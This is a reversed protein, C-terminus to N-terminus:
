AYRRPGDASDGIEVVDDPDLQNSQLYKMMRRRALYSRCTYKICFRYTKYASMALMLVAFVLLITGAAIQSQASDDLMFKGKTMQGFLIHPDKASRIEVTIPYGYFEVAQLYARSDRVGQKYQLSCPKAQFQWSYKQDQIRGGGGSSKSAAPQSVPLYDAVLCVKTPIYYHLCTHTGIKLGNGKKCFDFNKSFKEEKHLLRFERSQVTQNNSGGPRSDNLSFRLSAYHATDNLDYITAIFAQEKTPTFAVEFKLPEYDIVLEDDSLKSIDRLLRKKTDDRRRYYGNNFDHELRDEYRERRMPNREGKTRGLAHRVDWEATKAGAIPPVRRPAVSANVALLDLSLKEFQSRYTVTWAKVSRVYSM